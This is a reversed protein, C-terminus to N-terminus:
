KKCVVRLLDCEGNENYFKLNRSILFYSIIFGAAVLEQELELASPIHKFPLSVIAKSSQIMMEACFIGESSLAQHINNFAAKRNNVGEICHLCHSDFILDFQNKELINEVSLNMIEYHIGNILLNAKSIAVESFDIAKINKKLFNLEEFLSLSGAGLDLVQPDQSKLRPAVVSHFFDRLSESVSSKEEHEYYHNFHEM